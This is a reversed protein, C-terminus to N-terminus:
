RDKPWLRSMHFGPVPHHARAQFQLDVLTGDAACLRFAGDQRGDAVFEAWQSPTTARLDPAAIDVVRRGVLDSPEYGLIGLVGATAGVYMGTGDTVLMFEQTGPPLAADQYAVWAAIVDLARAQVEESGSAGEWRREATRWTSLLTTLSVNAM